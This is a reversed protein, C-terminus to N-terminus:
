FTKSFTTIRLAMISLTTLSLTTISLTTITVTTISLTTISLTMCFRFVFVNGNEVSGVFLGILSLYAKNFPSPRVAFRYM